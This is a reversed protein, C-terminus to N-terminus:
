SLKLRTFDVESFLSCVHIIDVIYDFLVQGFFNIANEGARINQGVTDLLDGLLDSLVARSPVM